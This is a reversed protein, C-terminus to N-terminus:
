SGRCAALAAEVRERTAREVLTVNTRQALARASATFMGTTVVWADSCGYFAKGAHAEQVAENGVSGSYRKCQVAVNRTGYTFVIDAGQDGTRPTLHARDAGLERLWNLVVVEFEEGTLEEVEAESDPATAQERDYEDYMEGLRRRIMDAVDDALRTQRKEAALRLASREDPAEVILYPSPLYSLTPSEGFPWVKGDECVVYNPKDFQFSRVHERWERARAGGEGVKDPYRARLKGMVVEIERDLADWDEDGYEDEITVKRRAIQVFREVLQHEALLVKEVRVAVEARAQEDWKESSAKAERSKSDNDDMARDMSLVFVGGEDTWRLYETLHIV